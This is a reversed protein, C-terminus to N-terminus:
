SKNMKYFEEVHDPHWWLRKTTKDADIQAVGIPDYNTDEVKRYVNSGSPTM